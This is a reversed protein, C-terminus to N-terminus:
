PLTYVGIKVDAHSVTLYLYGDTQRWGDIGFPGLAMYAGATINQTTIDGTRGYPDAVSSITYTRTSVGTNHLIVVERGTLTFQNGNSADGATMTLTTAATPNPGVGATKTLTTRAM